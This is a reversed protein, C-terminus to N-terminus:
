GLRSAQLRTALKDGPWFETVIIMVSVSAVIGAGGFLVHFHAQKKSNEVSEPIEFHHGFHGFMSAWFGGLRGQLWIAALLQNRLWKSM